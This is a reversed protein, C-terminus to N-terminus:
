WLHPLAEKMGSIEGYIITPKINGVFEALFESASKTVDEGGAAFSIELDEPLAAFVATLGAKSAPPIRGERVWSEIVPEIKQARRFTAVENEFAAMEAALKKKKKQLEADEMEEDKLSETKKTSFSDIIIPHQRDRTRQPVVERAYLALDAVRVYGDKQSVGKGALSEITAL